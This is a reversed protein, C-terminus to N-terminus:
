TSPQCTLPTSLPPPLPLPLPLPSLESVTMAAPGVKAMRIDQQADSPTTWTDGASSSRVGLDADDEEILIDLFLPSASRTITLSPGAGSCKDMIRRTDLVLQLSDDISIHGLFTELAGTFQHVHGEMADMQHSTQTM